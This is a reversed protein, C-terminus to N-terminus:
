LYEGHFVEVAPGTMYVTDKERDWTITLIGGLLEVEVTDDAYGALMAAVASACAGTGCAMTEGSGREWVRMKIHKRDIVRIFETNTRDPFRDHYEFGPGMNKLDLGEVTGEFEDEFLVAHPNGMSIGIFRYVKGEVELEEFLGSTLVPKGMDVTVATVKGNEVKMDLHKVGSATEVAIQTKDVIQHDYAYKGVCRIGNGCMAGRTGDLNYMDMRCDAVDSPMILILGDSGIGYHRNSVAIATESPNEVKEEFCNVYVYDNGIGQMKTFRMNVERIEEPAGAFRDLGTLEIRQEVSEMM